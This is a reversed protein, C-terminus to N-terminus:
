LKVIKYVIVHSDCDYMVKELAFISKLKMFFRKDKTYRIRASIYIHTSSSSLQKLTVTLDDFLSEDYVLDSGLIVDFPETFNKTQGWILSEITILNAPISNSNINRELVPIVGPLDTTTM